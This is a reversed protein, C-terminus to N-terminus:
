RDTERLEAPEKLRECLKKRDIGKDFDEKELLIVIEKVVAKQDFDMSDDSKMLDRGRKVLTEFQTVANKEETVSCIASILTLFDQYRDTENGNQAASGKALAVSAVSTSHEQQGGMIQKDARMDAQMDEQVTGSAM